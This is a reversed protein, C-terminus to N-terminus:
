GKVNLLDLIMNAVSSRFIGSTFWIGLGVAVLMCGIYVYIDKTKGKAKMGSIDIISLIIAAILIITIIM